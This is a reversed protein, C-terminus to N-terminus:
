SVGEGPREGEPSLSQSGEGQSPSPGPILTNVRVKGTMLHHLLSKFLTELTIKKNEETILKKEITQLHEASINQEKFNPLGFKHRKMSSWSTRPLNTGSTTKNAYSLYKSSHLVYVLYKSITINEKPTIILIDTSSIGSWEALACKDLYPRLKGYLIDGTYFRHKSSKVDSGFGFKTIYIEGSDIHQLGVYRTKQFDEPHVTEKRLKSVNGLNVVKWEEPIDGIETEKLPVQDAQNVPVPGYTFLHKMMSRKLERAAAIVGETAEIAQRVTSLVHAIARQEPLPPLPITTELVVKNSVAPYSSGRQQSVVSEVFSHSLVTFFLYDPDLINLNARLVCYGTSCIENDLCKPIQAINKLYPRVTAFITDKSRVVKRARSPAEEGVLENWGIVRYTENSVSSVDIYRFTKQPKMKPNRNETKEVVNKLFTVNWDKPLSGLPTDRYDDTLM